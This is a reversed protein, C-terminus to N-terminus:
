SSSLLRTIKRLAEENAQNVESLFKRSGQMRKESNEATFLDFIIEKNNSSTIDLPAGLSYRSVTTEMYTGPSVIIPIHLQAAYYLKNTLQYKFHTKEAGYMSMIVDTDRYYNLTESSQFDGQCRVNAAGIENVYPMLSEYGRGIFHLEFRQDNAFFDIIKRDLELNKATGISSLVLPTEPRKRQDVSAIDANSLHHMNHMVQFDHKGLFSVYAPSSIIALAANDIVREERKRYAYVNELFYDRIDIVYRKRYKDQLVTSLLVAANGTLAVVVEYDNKKLIRSAYSRFGAYGRLLDLYWGPGGGARVASRFRYATTANTGCDEKGRDWYILDYPRNCAQEYYSFYPTVNITDLSVYAIPANM